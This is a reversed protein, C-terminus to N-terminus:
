RRHTHAPPTRPTRTPGAASCASRPAPNAEGSPAVDTSLFMYDDDAVLGHGLRLGTPASMTSPTGRGLPQCGALRSGLTVCLGDVLDAAVLEDLLTPGGECLVRPLGRDRQQTLSRRHGGFGRRVGAGPETNGLDGHERARQQRHHRPDTADIRVHDPLQGSQSVVVIPPPQDYLRLAIRQGCHDPLLRVPATDNPAHRARGSSCSTPTPGCRWWCGSTLPASLPGRGQFESAGDASFIM